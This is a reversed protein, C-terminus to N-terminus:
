PESEFGDSFIPGGPLEASCRYFEVEDVYWGIRGNCGDIGFDLRLRVTDGGTAIGSLNVQTQGWSGSLTGADSGTWASQGALPNTNGSQVTVLNANYPSVELADAPVLTFAGGNVSIKLNGGDYGPESALWHNLSLRPTVTNPSLVIEPSDLALVGTEDDATCNGTVLDAVFAASGARGDPLNSVVTWPPTDFTGPNVVDRTGPTWGALGSEWDTLAISQLEGLGACREPPQSELVTQFNCQGPPQRLEVATIANSLEVCDSQSVAIGSLGAQTQSTSLQPLNVGVLSDCSTELADAMASFGSAPVLLQLANWYIHTAKLLGLGTISQGNFVGGDVALAFAHNPVGSNTHVGGSDDSSCWYQADSVKGPDGHCTPTWMDRIAGGFAPDDEGALWRYSDDIDPGAGYVSCSGATRPTNPTDTGRGNLQDVVEGWIDSFSENLAGPQWQYVLDATYQTYAHGWEHAVTDDGSVGNCYNTTTGNWSANPCGLFLYNNITRMTADAGDYSLWSGGTISAILNYTERAGDIEDQWAQVQGASGSAWGPPIPDPDAASDQWKVNPQFTESVKRDLATQIGKIRNLVKGTHADVFVFERVSRAPDAVEFMWALRVRGPVDRLLGTHYLLLESAIAQITSVAANEPLGALVAETAAHEAQEFPWSPVIDLPGIEVTSASIATLAQTGDFLGVVAAAFVPLGRHTQQYRVRILGSANADQRVPVLEDMGPRLGFADGHDALFARAKADANQGALARLATQGGDLRMFSVLGTAKSTRLVPAPSSIAQLREIGPNAKSEPAAQVVPLIFLSGLLLWTMGQILRRATVGYARSTIATTLPCHSATIHQRTGTGAPFESHLRDPGM